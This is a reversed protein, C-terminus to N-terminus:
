GWIREAVRGVSALKEWQAAEPIDNGDIV